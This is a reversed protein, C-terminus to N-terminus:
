LLAIHDDGVLTMPLFHPGAAYRLLSEFLCLAEPRDANMNEPLRLTTVLLRGSGYMAEFIFGFRSLAKNPSLYSTTTRIGGAIPELEPPFGDLPCYWAGEILNYFQLDCFGEHPFGSLAAHGAIVTGQSGGAKPFFQACTEPESRGAMLWVAGGTRLHSLAFSDLEQTLLLAQAAPAGDVESILPFRHSLRISKVHSCIPVLLQGPMEVRPFSWFSWRNTYEKGSRRAQVVLELQKPHGPVGPFTIRGAQAIEGMAATVLLTGGAIRSGASSVWWEVDADRMDEDGYNSLFADITPPNDSLFTREGPGASILPLVPSNVERGQEPLASKPTWFSDFWGEEWSDGEGTGGPYDVILWYHYGAIGSDRRVQEIQFRQGIHQLRQSNRVFEPYCAALGSAEVWRRKEHLWSPTIVGDFRDIMSIDPLSCYYSGFEHRVTPVDGPPKGFISVMDTPRLDFGDNSMILAAPALSKATHYFESIQGLLLQRDEDTKTWDADIENGFALSLLSPHNRYALLINNLEKRLFGGHRFFYQTYAAPLEAMVLIGVEDAAEFYAEPPTMSHFRVANFGYSKALRLRERHVDVSAPPLGHLVEINDDGFGRLYLPRGNLLLVDRRTTVARIGFRQVVCDTEEGNRRLVIDATYLYPADPSWLRAGPVPMQLTAEGDRIAASVSGLEPASIVAEDSEGTTRVRFTVVENEIDSTICVDILRTRDAAELTIDGYIGGWNAIYNLMGTPQGGEQLDPRADLGVSAPNEIRIAITNEADFRVAATVDFAFPASFGDHDGVSLGNVFGRARRHAGGIRLSVTKERWSRPILVKRLYWAAGSYSHRLIGAPEGYGQAQWDGPALISTDPMASQAWGQAEGVNDPDLRFQWTGNLGIQQRGALSPRVTEEGPRHTQTLAIKEM